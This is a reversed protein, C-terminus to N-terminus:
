MKNRFTSDGDCNIVLNKMKRLLVYLPRANFIKLTFLSLRIHKFNFDTSLILNQLIVVVVVAVYRM